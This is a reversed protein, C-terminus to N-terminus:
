AETDDVTEWPLTIPADPDYTQLAESPKYQFEEITPRFLGKTVDPDFTKTITSWGLMEAWSKTGMGPAAQGLVTEPDSFPDWEEQGELLRIGRIMEMLDRQVGGLASEAQAEKGGLVAELTYDGTEGAVAGYKELTREYETTAAEWSTQALKAAADRKSEYGGLLSEKGSELRGAETKYKETVDGLDETFGAEIDRAEKGIDEALIDRASRGVGSAAFGAAGIKAEAARIGGAGQERLVELEEERTIVATEKGEIKAALAAAIDATYTGESIINGEDDTIQKGTLESVATEWEEKITEFEGETGTLKEFETIIDEEAWGIDLLAKEIEDQFEDAVTEDVLAKWDTIATDISLKSEQAALDIPVEKLKETWPEGAVPQEWNAPDFGPVLDEMDELSRLEGNYLYADTIDGDYDGIDVEEGTAPDVFPDYTWYDESVMGDEGFVALATSMNLEGSEYLASFKLNTDQNTSPAFGGYQNAYAQAWEGSPAADESTSTYLEGNSSEGKVVRQAWARHDALGMDDEKREWKEDTGMKVVKSYVSKRTWKTNGTYKQSHKYKNGQVDYFYHYDWYTKLLAVEGQYDFSKSSTEVLKGQKDDWNFLVETYIRM